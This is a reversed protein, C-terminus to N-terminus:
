EATKIQYYMKGSLTVDDQTFDQAEPNGVREVDMVFGDNGVTIYQDAFIIHGPDSVGKKLYADYSMYAAYSDVRDTYVVNGDADFTADYLRIENTEAKTGNGITAEYVKVGDYYMTVTTTITIDLNVYDVTTNQHFEVGIRHWGDFELAFQENYYTAGAVTNSLWDDCKGKPADGDSLFLWFASSGNPSVLESDTYIGPFSINNNEFNGMSENLLISFEIYLSQGNPNETTPYFHQDEGLVDSLKEAEKILYAGGLTNYVVNVTAQGKPISYSQFENCVACLGEALGESFLTPIVVVPVDSHGTAPITAETGPQKEKCNYCKISKTGAETCTPPTDVTAIISWSHAAPIVNISGEKKAQCVSCKISEEGPTDCGAPIDVTPANGWTHNGTAPTTTTTSDGCSACVKTETGDTSCTAQTVSDTQYNHGTAPIATVSDAKKEGCAACKISESGEETCTAAKDTTAKSGWIHECAEGDGEGNGGCSTFAVMSIALCLVLTLAFLLKKM